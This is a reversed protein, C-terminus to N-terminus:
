QRLLMTWDSVVTVPVPSPPATNVLFRQGDAAVDYQYGPEQVIAAQFLPRPIDARFGATTGDVAVSMMRGDLTPYFLERGDGRWRPTFGGGTSVQWKGGPGPFPVVFVEDRGSEDSTYAFWRGDPSLRGYNDEAATEIFPYPKSAGDLPLVWIDSRARTSVRYILFRGDPSIDIPDKSLGDVLVRAEAGSGNAPKMFLDREVGARRENYVIRRGDPSWVATREDGADFTFRTRAARVLDVLWIDRTRRAPDLLGIAASTEDPALDVNSLNVRGAVTSSPAGTREYWVLEHEPTAIEQAYAFVGTTSVSALGYPRNLLLQVRDAIPAPEGAVALRDSDFRQAFVTNGRVFLLHGNTVGLPTLYQDEAFLIRRATSGLSAVAVQRQGGRRVAAGVGVTFLYRDTGEIFRPHQAFAEDAGLPM